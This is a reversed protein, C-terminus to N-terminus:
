QVKIVAVMGLALHPACNYRYTGAPVKDFAIVYSQGPTMLFPGTLPGMSQPMSSALKTAAGAPVSDPWFVVNHPPGSVLTWKVRDGRKITISAPSFRYGTADGIMKVEVTRPTDAAATPLPRSASLAVIGAVTAALLAIRSSHM